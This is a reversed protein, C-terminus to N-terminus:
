PEDFGSGFEFVNEEEFVGEQTHPVEDALMTDLDEVIAAEAPPSTLKAHPAFDAPPFAPSQTQTAACQETRVHREPSM